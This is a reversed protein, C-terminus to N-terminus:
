DFAFIAKIQKYVPLSLCTQMIQVMQQLYAYIHHRHIKFWVTRKFVGRHLTTPQIYWLCDVPLEGALFNEFACLVEDNKCSLVVRLIKTYPPYHSLAREQLLKEYFGELNDRWLCGVVEHVVGQHWDNTQYWVEDRVGKTSRVLQEFFQLCKEQARFDSMRVWRDVDSIVVFGKQQTPLVKLMGPLGVVIDVHEEQSVGAIEEYTQQNKITTVMKVKKSPFRISLFEALQEVGAGGQKLVVSKCDPCAEFFSSRYGCYHCVLGEKQYFTLSIRCTPCSALWHCASCFHYTAYGKRQTLVVVPKKSALVETIKDCILECLLVHHGERNDKNPVIRLTKGPLPTGSWYLYGYKGTRAHYYSEVSPVCATLLTKAEHYQALMMTTNRAHFYPFVNELCYKQHHEQSIFVYKLAQFPLFISMRTGVVYRIRKTLVGYWIDSREKETLSVDYLAIADGKDEFFRCIEGTLEPVLCLGQGEIPVVEVFFRWLWDPDEMIGRGAVLVMQKNSWLKNIEEHQLCPAVSAVKQTCNIGLKNTQTEMDALAFLRKSKTCIGLTVWKNIIALSAYKKLQVLPIWRKQQSIVLTQFAILLEKQKKTAVKEQAQEWTYGHQLSVSVHWTSPALPKTIHIIKKTLLDELITLVQEKGVMEEVEQWSLHHQTHLVELLKHYIAPLQLNTNAEESLFICIKYLHKVQQLAMRVVRNISCMYYTAIWSLLSRQVSNCVPKKDLICM